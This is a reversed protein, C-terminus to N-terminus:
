GEDSPSIDPVFDIDYYKAQEIDQQANEATDYSFSMFVNDTTPEYIILEHRESILEICYKYMPEQFDGFKLAHEFDRHLITIVSHTKPEESTKGKAIRCIDQFLTCLNNADEEHECDALWERGEKEVIAYVAYGQAKEPACIVTTTEGNGKADKVPFVKFGIIMLAKIHAATTIKTFYM